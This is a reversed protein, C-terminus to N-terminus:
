KWAFTDFAWATLGKVEQFRVFHNESGLVVTIVENGNGNRTAQALCYGAEPLSGTKGAVIRYPKQNLYSTLLLNTPKVRVVRTKGDLVNSVTLDFVESESFERIEPYALASRMMLAVDVASARNKPNIGTPDMFTAHTLGLTEAKVRMAELFVERGGNSTRVFANAIENASAVLLAHLAERRTMTDGPQFVASGQREIDSADITIKENDRLGQDMVVMSTMLKTLSAIPREVNAEKAYLVSGSALDVVLASKATTSIGLSDPRKKVPAEPMASVDQAVPLSPALVTPIANPSPNANLAIATLLAILHNLTM